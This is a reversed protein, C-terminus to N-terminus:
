CAVAIRAARRNSRPHVDRQVSSVSGRVTLSGCQRPRLTVDVSLQSSSSLTRLSCTVPRQRRCLGGPVARVGIVRATRPVVITLAVDFAPAPFRNRVTIRARGQQGQRLREPARLLLALDVGPRWSAADTFEGPATLLRTDGGPLSMVVLRRGSQDTRTFVLSRGDASWAPRTEAAPDATLRREGSGDAGMVYIDANGRRVSEFALRRGDPSWAPGNEPEPTSTLRRVDTSDATMTYIEDNDDRDSIFAITRGDPSWAPERDDATNNTLRATAHGTTDMRYIEANGNRETAFAIFFGDPSWAPDVDDRTNDSPEGGATPHSVLRRQDRGNRSMVYIDLGYGPVRASHFAIMTGDPSWTPAGGNAIAHGGSGDASVVHIRGGAAYAIQANPDSATAQAGAAILAVGVAVAISARRKRV